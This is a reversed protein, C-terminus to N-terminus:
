RQTLDRLEYGPYFKDRWAVAEARTCCAPGTGYRGDEKLLLVSYEFSTFKIPNTRFELQQVPNSM